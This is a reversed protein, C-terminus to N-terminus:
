GQPYFLREKSPTQVGPNYTPDYWTLYADLARRIIESESFNEELRIKELFDKQKRTIYLDIRVKKM